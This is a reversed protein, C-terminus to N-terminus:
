TTPCGLGDTSTIVWESVLLMYLGGCAVMVWNM